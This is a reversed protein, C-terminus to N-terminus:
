NERDSHSQRDPFSGVGRTRRGGGPHQTLLHIATRHLSDPVEKLTIYPDEENSRYYTLGKISSFPGAGIFTESDHRPVRNYNM